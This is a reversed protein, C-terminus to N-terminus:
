LKELNLEAWVPTHDSPKECGRPESDVLCQSSVRALPATVM